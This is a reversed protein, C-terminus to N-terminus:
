RWKSLILNKEKETYTLTIANGNELIHHVYYYKAGDRVLTGADEAGIEFDHSEEKIADRLFM